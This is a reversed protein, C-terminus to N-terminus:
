RSIIWKSGELAENIEKKTNEIVEEIAKQM